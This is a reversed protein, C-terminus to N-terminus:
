DACEAGMDACGDIAVRENIRYLHQRADAMNIRREIADIEELRAIAERVTRASLMTREIIQKQTLEGHYELVKFVLKASPPLDYLADRDPGCSGM